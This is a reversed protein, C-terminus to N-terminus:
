HMPEISGCLGIAGGFKADVRAHGAHEIRHDFPARHEFALHGGKIGRLGFSHRAHAINELDLGAAATSRGGAAYRNKGVIGPGRNLAAFGECHLLDSSCVDSSWDGYS